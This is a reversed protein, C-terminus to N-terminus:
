TIGNIMNYCCQMRLMAGANKIQTGGLKCKIELQRIAKVVNLVGYEVSIMLADKFFRMLYEKKAIDKPIYNLSQLFINNINKKFRLDEQDGQKTNANTVFSPTFRRLYDGLYKVNEKMVNSKKEAVSTIADKAMYIIKRMNKFYKMSFIDNDFAKKYQSHYNIYRPMVSKLENVTITKPDGILLQYIKGRLATISREKILSTLINRDIQIYGAGGYQAKKYKLFYNPVVVNYTHPSLWELDLLSLNGLDKLCDELYDSNYGLIEALDPVYVDPIIGDYTGSKKILESPWAQLLITLHIHSKSLRLKERGLRNRDSNYLKYRQKPNIYTKSCLANNYPCKACEMRLAEIMSKEILADEQNIDSKDKLYDPLDDISQLRKWIDCGMSSCVSTDKPFYEKIVTNVDIPGIILRMLGADLDPFRRLKEISNIRGSNIMIDLKDYDSLLNDHNQELLTREM